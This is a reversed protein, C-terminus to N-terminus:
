WSMEESQDFEDEVVGPEGWSSSAGALRQEAGRQDAEAEAEDLEYDDLLYRVLEALTWAGLDISAADKRDGLLAQQGKLSEFKGRRVDQLLARVKKLAIQEMECVWSVEIGMAAGVEELSAGDPHAAVFEKAWRDREWPLSYWTSSGPAGPPVQRRLAVPRNTVAKAATVAKEPDWEAALRKRLTDESIDALKAWESIYRTEGRVTLTDAIPLDAAFSFATQSILQKPRRGGADAM